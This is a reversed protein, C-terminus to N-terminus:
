GLGAAKKVNAQHASDTKGDNHKLSNYFHIDFHGSADNGKVYDYNIGAGYDGSRWDTWVGGAAWENGAHMAGAASAAVTRGDIKILVPRKNWNLTGGWIQKMTATDAATLPECDAHNAGVTRKARFSKGTGIDYVTFVANIPVVYQAESWWDLLEGCGSPASKVPIHHVPVTLVQGDKVFSNENLGNAELLESFPIGHDIAISWLTDNSRVTYKIYTVYPAGGSNNQASGGGSGGQSPIVVRDGINLVSSENAGNAALLASLSVGYKQAILWYTDGKQVVHVNKSSGPIVVRDGINLVSSENAGNAALLASLSVGYKQAILWYTDGKQVVHVNESSDPIVVKDGINLVSGENAGNAALLASLSVGYKQAILWYTDGKQATHVAAACPQSALALAAFISLLRKKNM